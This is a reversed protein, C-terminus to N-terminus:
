EDSEAEIKQQQSIKEIRKECKELINRCHNILTMGNEYQELSDQLPVQGSEIKQVIKTLEGIAEEFCIKNIDNKGM